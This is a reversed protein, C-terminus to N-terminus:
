KQLFLFRNEPPAELKRLWIEDSGVLIVNVKRAEEDALLQIKNELKKWAPKGFPKYMGNGSSCYIVHDYGKEEPYQVDLAEGGEGIEVTLDWDTPGNGIIIQDINKMLSDASVHM